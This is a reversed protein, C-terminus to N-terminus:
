APNAHIHTTPVGFRHAVKTPLDARLWRSVPHPLTSVIIEDFRREGLVREVAAFPDPDGLEGEADAGMARISALTQDLRLQADAVARRQRDPEEGQLARM